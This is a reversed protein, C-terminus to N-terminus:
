REFFWISLNSPAPTPWTYTSPMTDPVNRLEQSVIGYEAPLSTIGLAYFNDAAVAVLERMLADRAEPDLTTTVQRYLDIARKVNEPPEVALEHNPNARWYAWGPGFFAQPVANPILLRPVILPELGGGGEAFWITADHNNNNQMEALLSRDATNLFTEVGVADWYVKVLEMIDVWDQRGVASANVFVQLRSGDPLLRFGEGDREALGVSDLLENAREPDYETYQTAFSEDFFPSSPLLAAQFPEGQGVFIADIIEQRNIALSLAIRFDKNLYLERKIPDKHTMNVAIMGPGPGTSVLEIFRYNGREMNDFLVPKNINTNIHRFMLDIEGSLTKLLLVEENGVLDFRVSNIYPLQNGDPDAKFYYPNREAVLQSTSEGYGTTLKWAWLVPRASDSYSANGLIQASLHATWNDFGAAQALRDAEPNYRIHFQSL